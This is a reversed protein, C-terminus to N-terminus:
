EHESHLGSPDGRDGETKLVEESRLRQRVFRGPPLMGLVLHRAAEAAFKDLTELTLAEGGAAKAAKPVVERAIFRRTDYECAMQLLRSAYFQCVALTDDYGGRDLLEDARVGRMGHLPEVTDSGRGLPHNTFLLASPSGAYERAVLVSYKLAGLVEVAAVITGAEPDAVVMIRNQFALEECTPLPLHPRRDLMVALPALEKGTAVFQRAQELGNQWVSLSFEEGLAALVNLVMKMISRSQEPTGLEIAGKIPAVPENYLIQDVNCVKVPGYKKELGKLVRQVKDPAGAIQVPVPRVAEAIESSFEPAQVDLLERAGGPRVKYTRGTLVGHARVIPPDDRPIGVIARVLELAEPLSRDIEAGLRNNCASCVISRSSRKGGLARLVLHEETTDEPAFQQDCYVCSAM